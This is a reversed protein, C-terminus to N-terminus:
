LYVRSLLYLYFIVIFSVIAIGCGATIYGYIHEYAPDNALHHKKMFIHRPKPMVDIPRLPPYKEKLQFYSLSRKRVYCKKGNHKGIYMLPRPRRKGPLHGKLKPHKGEIYIIRNKHDIFLEQLEPHIESGTIIEGTNKDIYTLTKM